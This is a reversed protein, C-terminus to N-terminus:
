YSGRWWVGSSSIVCIPRIPVCYNFTMINSYFIQHNKKKASATMLGLKVENFHDARESKLMLLMERCPILAAKSFSVCVTNVATKMM